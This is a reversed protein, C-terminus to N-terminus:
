NQIWQTQAQISGSKDDEQGGEGEQPPPALAPPTIATRSGALGKGASGGVAGKAKGGWCGSHTHGAAVSKLFLLRNGTKCGASQQAETRLSIHIHKEVRLNSRRRLPSWFLYMNPSVIYIFGPEGNGRRLRSPRCEEELKQPSTQKRKHKLKECMFLYIAQALKLALGVGTQPPYSFNLDVESSIKSSKCKGIGKPRNSKQEWLQQRAASTTVPQEGTIQYAPVRIWGCLLCTPPYRSWEQEHEM